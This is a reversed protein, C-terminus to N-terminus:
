LRHVHIDQTAGGGGGGGVCVVRWVSVCVLESDIYIKPLELQSLLLEVTVLFHSAISHYTEGLYNCAERTLMSFQQRLVFFLRGFLYYTHVAVAGSKNRSLRAVHQKWAEIIQPHICTYPSLSLTHTHTNHTYTHTTHIYTNHTHTRTCTHTQTQKHTHTHTHVNQYM